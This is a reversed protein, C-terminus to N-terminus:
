HRHLRARLRRWAIPITSSPELVEADLLSREFESLWLLLGGVRLALLVVGLVVAAVVVGGPLPLLAAAVGAGPVPQLTAAVAAGLPLALPLMGFLPTALRAALAVGLVEPTAGLPMAAVVEALNEPQRVRDAVTIVATVAALPVLLALWGPAPGGWGVWTGVGGAGPAPGGPAPGGAASGGPAAGLLLGALLVGSLGTVTVLVTAARLHLRALRAFGFPLLEAALPADHERRLPELLPGVALVLVGCAAMIRFAIGTLGVRDPTALVLWTALAWGLGARVLPGPQARLGVLHRWTVAGVSRRPLPPSSLPRRRVRASALQTVARLDGMRLSAAAGGHVGARAVLEEDHSRWVRDGAVVALVGATSALVVLLTPAALPVTAGAGIPRETAGPQDLLGAALSRLVAEAPVAPLWPTATTLLPVGLALALVMRVLGHRRGTAPWSQALGACGTALLGLVAGCGPLLWWAAPGVTLALSLLVVGALALAAGLLVALGLSWWYRPLLLRRRDLPTPLLLSAEAQTVPVPGAWRGFRVGLLAAAPALAVLVTGLWRLQAPSPPPTPITLIAHILLGGYLGGFLLVLYVAYLVEGTTRTRRPTTQLLHAVSAPATASM